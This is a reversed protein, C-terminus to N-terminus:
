RRGWGGRGRSMCRLVLRRRLQRGCGPSRRGGVSRTRLCCRRRGHRRAEAIAIAVPADRRTFERPDDGQNYVAFSCCETTGRYRSAARSRVLVAVPDDARTFEGIEQRINQLEGESTGDERRRDTTRRICERGVMLRTAAGRGCERSLTLWSPRGRSTFIAKPFTGSEAAGTTVDVAAGAGPVSPCCTRVILFSPRSSNHQCIALNVFLTFPTEINALPPPGRLGGTPAAFRSPTSLMVVRDQRCNRPQTRAHRTAEIAISAAGSWAARVGACFHVDDFSFAAPFLANALSLHLAM